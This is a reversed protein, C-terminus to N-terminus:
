SRRTPTLHHPMDALRVRSTAADRQRVRAPVGTMVSGAPTERTVVAGAGVVASEGVRLGQLVTASAGVLAGAGVVVSGSVCAQPNLRCFDHLVADHGVTANQDIHVHAGVTINTSLRAGTAVLVGVDMSVLLGITADPHVLVPFTVPAGALRDVVSKRSLASGIAVVAYSPDTRAALFEVNGVVRAGLALVAARDAPSPDDDVFGEVDWDGGQANIARVTSFVERGFGGCGVIILPRRLDPRSAVLGNVLEPV